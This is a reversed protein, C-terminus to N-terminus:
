AEEPTHQSTHTSEASILCMDYLTPTPTSVGSDNSNAASSKDENHRKQKVGTGIGTTVAAIVVASVVVCFCVKRQRRKRLRDGIEKASHQRALQLQIENENSIIRDETTFDTENEPDSAEAYHMNEPDYHPKNAPTTSGLSQVQAPSM